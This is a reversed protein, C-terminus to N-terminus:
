QGPEDEQVLPQLHQRLYDYAFRCRLCDHRDCYARKLQLLAQSDAASAATIGCHAWQRTIYNHEAPLQQLLDVAQECLSDDSLATGRAFLVPTIANVVLLDLSAASLRKASPRASLGFLYHDRWYASPQTSLAEHLQQRTTAALVAALDARRSCYLQALQSLRIHPFSQPRMRLYRWQAHPMPAPLGFKHQLFAWERQLLCLYADARAAERASPPMGDIDLMGASGLFLAEVQVENDRHKAAAHLPLQRAWSEFADGNTGFGFARALTVFHAREWDGDAQRLRQLCQGARQQLREAVLAALWSHVRLPTLVPVIRWCRPYDDNVCLATYNDRVHRPVALELTPPRIGSDTAIDADAREVVHLVVNDYAPDHDHGHRVWDSSRLHIEVNGVWLMGGIRVKANFFDPGANSNALGVDIVDVERGDTTCLEGAFLRHRWVYHLLRESPTRQAADHVAASRM